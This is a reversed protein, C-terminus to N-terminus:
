FNFYIFPNHANMILASVSMLFLALHLVYGAAIMMPGAKPISSVKERIIRFIPTACAIGIVITILYERLYSLGTADALSSAGAVLMTSIYQGANSLSDSRFLVWGLMVALLTVVRWAISTITSRKVKAPLDLQKELVILVGYLVGWLIFTWNAGHWIGTLLWVTFLNLVLRLRSKM